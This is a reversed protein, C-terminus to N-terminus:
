KAAEEGDGWLLGAAVREKRHERDRTRFRRGEVHTQDMGGGKRPSHHFIEAKDAVVGKKLKVALNTMEQAAFLFYGPFCIKRNQYRRIFTQGILAVGGYLGSTKNMKTQDRDARRFGVIGDDDPFKEKMVRAAEDIAGPFFTIDDVACILGDEVGQSIFNRAYVSGKNERFFVVKSVEERGILAKATKPDGDCVVIIEIPIEPMNRTISDLSTLLKELRNRTPYMVTIKKM